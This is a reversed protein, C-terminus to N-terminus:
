IPDLCGEPLSCHTWDWGPVPELFEVIYHDVIGGISKGVVKARYERGDPNIRRLMVLQDQVFDKHFMEIEM